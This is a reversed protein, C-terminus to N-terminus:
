VQRVMEKRVCKYVTFELTSRLSEKTQHIVRKRRRGFDMERVM